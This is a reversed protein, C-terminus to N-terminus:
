LEQLFSDHLTDERLFHRVIFRMYTFISLRPIVMETEEVVVSAFPIISGSAQKFVPRILIGNLQWQEEDPAEM